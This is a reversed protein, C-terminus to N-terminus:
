VCAHLQVSESFVSACVFLCVYAWVYKRTRVCVCVCVCVCLSVYEHVGCGFNLLLGHWSLESVRESDGGAFTQASHVLPLANISPWSPDIIGGQAEPCTGATCLLVVPSPPLVSSIHISHTHTCIKLRVLVRSPHIGRRTLAHARALANQSGPHATNLAWHFHSISLTWRLLNSSASRKRASVRASPSLSSAMLTRAHCACQCGCVPGLSLRKHFRM